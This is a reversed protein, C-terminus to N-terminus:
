TAVSGCASGAATSATSATPRRTVEGPASEPSGVIACHRASPNSADRLWQRNASKAPASPTAGDDAPRIHSLSARWPRTRARRALRSRRATSMETVAAPRFAASSAASRCRASAAPIRALSGAGAWRATASANRSERRSRPPGRWRGCARAPAGHRARGRRAGNRPERSGAERAPAAAM